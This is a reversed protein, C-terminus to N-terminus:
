WRVRVRYRLTTEGGAAVPVDFRAAWASSQTWDHSTELMLRDGGISENVEVVIPEDKHNRLTIEFAVEHVLSSVRRFDSFPDSM